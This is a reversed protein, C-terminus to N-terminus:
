QRKARRGRKKEVVMEDTAEAIQRKRSRNKPSPQNLKEAQRSTSPQQQEVDDEGTRSNYDTAFDTLLSDYQLMKRSIKVRAHLRETRGDVDGATLSSPAPNISSCSPLLSGSSSSPLTPPLLSSSSMPASANCRMAGIMVMSLSDRANKVPSCGSLARDRLFPAMKEDFHEMAMSSIDRLEQLLEHPRAPQTKDDLSHNLVRLIAFTEDLVKGPIFCCLDLDIFKNYTMGLLSLRTEIATLIDSHRSLPHSRRESERRPLHQKVKAMSRGHFQELRRFGTNLHQKAVRDFQRCVMRCVCVRDYPLFELIRRLLENPLSLLMTDTSM